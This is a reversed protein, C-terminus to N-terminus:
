PIFFIRKGDATPPIFRGIRRAQACGNEVLRRQLADAIEPACAILLGGSTQPDLAIEAPSGGEGWDLGAGFADLNRGAGGTHFGAATKKVEASHALSETLGALLPLGRLEIELAVGSTGDVSGCMESAHGALGFGTVDTVAHVADGFEKASKAAAANLASMTRVAEAALAPPCKDQKMLTSAIGSGLPKTLLLADGPVAGVNRWFRGGEIRGTVCLGCLPEESDISHGGAIVLGAERAANAIGRLVEGLAELPLKKAPWAILNLGWLPTGGMAYIDSIANAAAIRGFSFPDDVVPSFFDM